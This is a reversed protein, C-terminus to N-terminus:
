CFPWLPCISMRVASFSRTDLNESLNRSKANIVMYEVLKNLNREAEQRKIESVFESSSMREVGSNILEKLNTDVDGMFRYHRRNAENKATELLQQKFEQRTM